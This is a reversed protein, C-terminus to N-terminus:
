VERSVSYENKIIVVPYNGMGAESVQQARSTASNLGEIDMYIM